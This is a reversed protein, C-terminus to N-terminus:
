KEPEFYGQQVQVVAAHDEEPVENLTTIIERLKPPINGNSHEFTITTYNPNNIHRHLM